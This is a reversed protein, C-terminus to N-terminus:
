PSRRNSIRFRNNAADSAIKRMQWPSIGTRPMPISPVATQAAALAEPIQREGFLTLSKVYYAFSYDPNIATAKTLLDLRAATTDADTTSWGYLKARFRAYVLGVMAEANQPDIKLARDFYDRASTTSEQTPQQWLAAWGRMMLDIADPDTSHAGRQAEARALEYGLSNALRAVV